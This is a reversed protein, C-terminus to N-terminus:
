EFLEPELGRYNPNDWDTSTGMIMVMVYNGKDDQTVYLLKKYTLEHLSIPALFAQELENVDM